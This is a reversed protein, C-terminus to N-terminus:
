CLMNRITHEIRKPSLPQLEIQEVRNQLPILRRIGSYYQNNHWGLVVLWGTHGQPLNFGSFSAQSQPHLQITSNHQDLLIFARGEALQEFPGFAKISLMVNNQRQPTFYGFGYTGDSGITTCLFKQRNIKKLQPSPHPNPKWDVMGKTTASRIGPHGAKYLNPLIGNYRGAPLPWEVEIPHVLACPQGPSGFFVSFLGLQHLIPSGSNTAIGSLLAMRADNTENLSVLILDDSIQGGPHRLARAPIRITLGYRSTIVQDYVPDLTFVQPEPRTQYFFSDLGQSTHEEGIALTSSYLRAM